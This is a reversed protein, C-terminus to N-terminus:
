QGLPGWRGLLIGLDGGAVVGDGDLDGIVPNQLGWLGLIVGLDGGTISGDLDFDGLAYECDDITGDTDKDISGSAIDCSDPVGNLNCDQSSGSSIDCADPRQNANCDPSLGAGTEYQDPLGNSNCDSQCDDPVGDLDVDSSQGSSVDCADPVGNGNCDPSSGSTVQCSDPQGNGDCDSSLGSAIDCSDPAANGNCDPAAGSAIDCGDPKGNSNCDAAGGGAIDCGDPIANSDCDPAGTALDCSDPVANADCDQTLGSSIEFSDPLHNANCDPQCSDPVGNGDVDLSAGSSLDCGDPRGNSNCDPVSGDAVQCLDSLGDLDCDFDPSGYIVSVRCLPDVCQLPDVLASGRILVPLNPGFTAIAENWTSAAISINATNPLAPCDTGTSQFVFSAVTTAGIQVSCYETLAGLDAIAELKLAVATSSPVVDALIGTATEAPGIRGMNGTTATRTGDECADPIANQNCDPSLGAGTEFSDPIGNGNCDPRCEDPVGDADVDNSSGTAVDCSDPRLNRNCDPFQGSALDCADPVANLNCDPVIGAAIEYSDPLQNANCDPQCSDPIGNADIDASTGELIDCSDLRGNSNCDNPSGTLVVCQSPVHVQATIQLDSKFLTVKAFGTHPASTSVFGFTYLTGYRIANANPNQAYTEQCRWRMGDSTSERAWDTGNWAEGSHHSVDRFYHDTTVIGAEMPVEFASAAADSNQNYVAYWYRYQGNGLDIVNSGVYFRGDPGDVPTVMAGPNATSWFLIAPQRQVTSGTLTLPYTGSSITSSVTFRRYSVNNNDNGALADEPSIVMNEALFVADQQISPNLDSSAIQIRRAINTQGTPLSPWSAVEVNTDAPFYGTSIDLRSRPGLDSQTGQHSATNRDSCGIGLLSPCGSGASQCSGCLTQQFACFAYFNWSVGIQVIAGGQIRFVSSSFLPHRSTNAFNELQTDGINCWDSGFSYAMIAAGNVTNQNYRGVDTIAGVIADAGQARVPLTM